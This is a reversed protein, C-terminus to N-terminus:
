VRIGFYNIDKLTATMVFRMDPWLCGHDTKHKCCATYPIGKVCNYRYKSQQYSFYFDYLEPEIILESKM